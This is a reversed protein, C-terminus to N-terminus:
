NFELFYYLLHKCASLLIYISSLLFVYSGWSRIWAFCIIWLCRITDAPPCVLELHLDTRNKVVHHHQQIAKIEVFTYENMIQFTFVYLIYYFLNTWITIVFMCKQESSHAAYNHNLMHPKHKHSHMFLSLTHIWLRGQCCPVSLGMELQHDIFWSKPCASVCVCLHAKELSQQWYIM